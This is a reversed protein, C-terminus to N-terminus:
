AGGVPGSAEPVTTAGSGGPEPVHQNQGVGAEAHQRIPGLADTALAAAVEELEKVDRAHPERYPSFRLQKDPLIHEFAASRTTYHFLVKGHEL